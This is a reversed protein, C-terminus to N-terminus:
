GEQSVSEDKRDRWYKCYLHNVGIGALFSVPMQWTMFGEIWAFANM